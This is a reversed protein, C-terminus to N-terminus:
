YKKKILRRNSNDSLNIITKGFLTTVGSSLSDLISEKSNCFSAGIDIAGSTVILGEGSIIDTGVGVIMGPTINMTHPNGAKGVGHIMGDRIGIDAKIIGCLSDIIVVNTIVTDLAIDNSITVSQGMAERASKGIGVTLEDGYSLFDREIEIILNTDGLHIRDGVTPGYNKIYISRTMEIQNLKKDTQTALKHTFARKSITKLVKKLSDENIEGNVLNNGSKVVCQGKITTLPVNVTMKPKFSISEGSPINL